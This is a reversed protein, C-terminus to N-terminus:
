RGGGPRRAGAGRGPAPGAGAPGSRGRRYQMGAGPTPQTTGDGLWGRVLTKQEPTLAEGVREMAQVNNRGISQMLPRARQVAARFASRQEPTMDRPHVAGRARVEHRIAVLQTVLPDNAAHLDSQIAKLRTVQESSLRLEGSRALLIEIPDGPALTDTLFRPGGQARSPGPVLVGAALVAALAWRITTRSLLTM